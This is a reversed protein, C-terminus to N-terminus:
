LLLDSHKGFLQFFESLVAAFVLYAHEDFFLLYKNSLKPFSFALFEDNLPVKNFKPLSPGVSVQNHL